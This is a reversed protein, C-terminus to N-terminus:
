ELILLLVAFVLKFVINMSVQRNEHLQSDFFFTSSALRSWAV